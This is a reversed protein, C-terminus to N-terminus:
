EGYSERVRQIKAGAKELKRKLAGTFFTWKFKFAFLDPLLMEVATSDQDQRINTTEGDIVVTGFLAFWKKYYTVQDLQSHKLYCMKISKSGVRKPYYMIGDELCVVRPARGFWNRPFIKAATFTTGGTPDIKHEKIAKEVLKAKGASLWHKPVIDQEGIINLEKWFLWKREMLVLNIRKYPLYAMEDKFFTKRTYVVANKTLTLQDPFIWGFKYTTGEDNLRKSKSYCLERIENLVANSLVRANIQRHYGCYLKMPSKVFFAMESLPVSDVEKRKTHFLWKDTYALHEKFIWFGYSPRVTAKVAKTKELLEMVKQIDETALRLKRTSTYMHLDADLEEETVEEQEEDEEDKPLISQFLFDDKDDEAMDKTTTPLVDYTGDESLFLYKSKLTEDEDGFYIISDTQVTASERKWFWPFQRRTFTFKEADAVIDVRRRFLGWKTKITLQEM